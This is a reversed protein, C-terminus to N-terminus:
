KRHTPLFTFLLSILFKMLNLCSDHIPLSFIVQILIQTQIVIVSYETARANVPGPGPGPGNFGAPGPLSSSVVLSNVSIQEVM